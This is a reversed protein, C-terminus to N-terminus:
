TALGTSKELYEKLWKRGWGSKLYRERKGASARDPYEQLLVRTWPRYHKPWGGRGANHAKFREDHHASRGIYTKDAVTSQLVYVYYM